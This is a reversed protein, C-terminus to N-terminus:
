LYVKEACRLCRTEQKTHACVIIIIGERKFEREFERKAQILEDNPPPGVTGSPDNALAIAHKIHLNSDMNLRATIVLTTELTPWEAVHATNAYWYIQRALEDRKSNDQLFDEYARNLEALSTTPGIGRHMPEGNARSCLRPRNAVCTLPIPSAFPPRGLPTNM